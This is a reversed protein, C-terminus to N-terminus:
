DKEKFVKEAKQFMKTKKKKAAASCIGRWPGNSRMDCSAVFDVLHVSAKFGNKLTVKFFKCLLKTLQPCSPNQLQEQRTFTITSRAM